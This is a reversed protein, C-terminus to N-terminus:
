LRQRRLSRAAPLPPPGIHAERTPDDTQSVATQQRVKLLEESARQPQRFASWCAPVDGCPVKVPSVSGKRLGRSPGASAVHARRGAFTQRGARPKGEHRRGFAHSGPRSPVAGGIARHCCVARGCCWSESALLDLSEALPRLKASTLHLRRRHCSELDARRSGHGRLCRGARHRSRGAAGQLVGRRKCLAACVVGLRPFAARHSAQASRHGAHGIFAAASRAARGAEFDSPQLADRAYLDADM